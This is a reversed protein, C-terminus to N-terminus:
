GSHPVIEWDLIDNLADATGPRSTSYVLGSFFEDLFTSGTIAACVAMLDSERDVNAAGSSVKWRYYLGMVDTIRHEGGTEYAILADLVLAVLAGKSRALSAPDSTSGPYDALTDEVAGAPSRILQRASYRAEEQAFSWAWSKPHALFRQETLLLQQRFTQRTILNERLLMLWALYDTAGETYWDPAFQPTGQWLLLLERALSHLAGPDTPFNVTTDWGFAVSSGLRIVPEGGAVVRPVVITMQSGTAVEFTQQGFLLIRKVIESISNDLTPRRGQVGVIVDIGAAQVAIRRFDGAAVVANWLDDQDGPDYSRGYGQWPVIIRWSIPIDFIVNVQIEPLTDTGSGAGEATGGLAPDPYLFLEYGPAYLSESSIGVGAAGVPEHGPAIVQWSLRMVGGTAGTITWGRPHTAVRLSQGFGDVAEPRSQSARRSSFDAHRWVVGGNVDGMLVATVEVVGEDLVPRIVYSVRWSEQRPPERGTAEGATATMIFWPALLLSICYHFRRM